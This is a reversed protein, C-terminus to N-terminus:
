NIFIFVLNTENKEKEMRKIDAVGDIFIINLFSGYDCSVIHNAEKKMRHLKFFTDNM